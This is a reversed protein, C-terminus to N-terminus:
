LLLCKDWYNFNTNGSSLLPLFFGPFGYFLSANGWFNVNFKNPTRLGQEFTTKAKSQWLEFAFLFKSDNTIQYLKYFIYFISPYGHCLTFDNDICDTRSLTKEVIEIGERLIEQNNLMVGAKYMAYGTSLDGYCWALGIKPNYDPMKGIWFHPPYHYHSGAIKYSLLEEIMCYILQDVDINKEKAQLLLLLLGCLGHPVGLNIYKYLIGKLRVSTSWDKSKTKNHLFTFYNNILTINNRAHLFYFLIGSAGNFYDINNDSLKLYFEKELAIDVDNLWEEVSEDDILNEKQLLHTVWALGTLGYGLSYHVLEDNVFVNISDLARKLFYCNNTRFYESVALLVLGMEGDVLGCHNLRNPSRYNSIVSNCFFTYDVGDCMNLHDIGFLLTNM